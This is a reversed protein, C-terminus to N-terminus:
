NKSVVPHYPVQYTEDSLITQANKLTSDLDDTNSPPNTATRARTLFDTNSQLIAYAKWANLTTYQYRIVRLSFFHHEEPINGSYTKNWSKLWDYVRANAKESVIMLQEYAGGEALM